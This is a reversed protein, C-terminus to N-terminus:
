PLRPFPSGNIGTIHAHLAATFATASGSALAEVLRTHEAIVESSRALLRDGQAFLLYRQRDALRENLELLVSNSAVDVFTQHFAISLEIFGRVDGGELTSRQKELEPRLREALAQRAEPTAQSAGFSELALRAAAVEDIETDSLGRVLAGRRPYTVIWGEDRLRGLAARVPTRSVGTAKALASESLMRGSAFDGELIRDRVWAYAVDAASREEVAEIVM